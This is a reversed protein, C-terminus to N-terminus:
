LLFACHVDDDGAARAKDAGIKDIIQQAMMGLVADDAQVLQGVGAVHLRQSGDHLVRAKAEHAGVDGVGFGHVPEKLLFLGIDHDVERGFAVHVAGDGIRADKYAGIHHTCLHKQFAAALVIDPAEMLDGGVFDVAIKGQVARVQEKGFLCGQM